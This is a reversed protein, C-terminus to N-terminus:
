CAQQAARDRAQAGHIRGGLRGIQDVYQKKIVRCPRSIYQQEFPADEPMTTSVSSKGSDRSAVFWRETDGWAAVLDGAEIHVSPEGRELIVPDFQPHNCIFGDCDGMVAAYRIGHQVALYRRYANETIQMRLQNVAYRSMGLERCAGAVSTGPRYIVGLARLTTEPYTITGSQIEQVLKCGFYGLASLMPNDSDHPMLLALRAIADEMAKYLPKTIICLYRNAFLEQTPEPFCYQVQVANRGAFTHFFGPLVQQATQCYAQYFQADNELTIILEDTTDIQIPTTNKM